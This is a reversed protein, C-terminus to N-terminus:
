LRREQPRYWIPSAATHAPASPRVPSPSETEALSEPSTSCAPPSVPPLPRRQVPFSTAGNPCDFEVSCGGSRGCAIHAPRVPNRSWPSSYPPQTSSSRGHPYSTLRGLKFVGYDGPVLGIGLFGEVLPLFGSLSGGLNESPASTSAAYPMSRGSNGPTEKSPHVPIM